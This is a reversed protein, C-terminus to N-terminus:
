ENQQAITEDSIGYTVQLKHQWVEFSWIEKKVLYEVKSKLLRM